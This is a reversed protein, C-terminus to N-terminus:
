NRKNKDKKWKRLIQFIGEKLTAKRNERFNWLELKTYGGSQRYYNMESLATVVANFAEEGYEEKLHKLTDDEVDVIKQLILAVM